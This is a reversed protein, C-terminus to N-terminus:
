VLIAFIVSILLRKKLAAYESDNVGAPRKDYSRIKNKESKPIADYGAKRVAEVIDDSKVAAEDLTLTMSNKLLNVSVDSVGVLASVSKEVRASCVSCTM